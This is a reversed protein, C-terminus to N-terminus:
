NSLMSKLKDKRLSNLINPERIKLKDGFQLLWNNLWDLNDFEFSIEINNGFHQSDLIAAPLKKRFEESSEKTILIKVLHNSSKRDYLLNSIDSSKPVLRSSDVPIEIKAMQSLVFNRNDKKTHCYGIVNWHDVFYAIIHPDIIRESKEGRRNRYIFSVPKQNAIASLITFWNGGTVKIAKEMEHPDVVVSKEIANMFERLEAPLASAIKNQVKIADEVIVKDSQSRLFSLGMTITAIERNTFMLPKIHADRMIGYGEETDHTIPVNLDRLYRLDRYITRKDVDFENALDKIRLNKKNQMMLYIQMRRETSNM